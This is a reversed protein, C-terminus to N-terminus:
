WIPNRNDNVAEPENILYIKSNFYKKETSQGNQYAESKKTEFTYRKIKKGRGKKKFYKFFFILKYKLKKKKKTVKACGIGFKIMCKRINAKSINFLKSAKNVTM